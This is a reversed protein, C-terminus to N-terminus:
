LIRLLLAPALLAEAKSDQTQTVAKSIHELLPPWEMPQLSPLTFGTDPFAWLPTDM